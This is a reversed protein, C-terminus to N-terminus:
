TSVKHIPAVYKEDAQNELVQIKRLIDEANMTCSTTKGLIRGGTLSDNRRMSTKPKASAVNRSMQSGSIGTRKLSQSTMVRPEYPHMM